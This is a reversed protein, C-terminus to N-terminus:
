KSIVGIQNLLLCVYITFMYVYVYIYTWMLM